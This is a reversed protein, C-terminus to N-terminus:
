ARAAVLEDLITATGDPDFLQLDHPTAVEAYLWGEALAREAFPAMDDDRTCRVFARPLDHVSRTLAVPDTMTKFPHPGLRQLYDARVEGPLVGEPPWLERPMTVAGDHENALLAAGFDDPVLDLLAQGDDPVFADLYVVMRIREPARDAVATVVMGGYSHGCLVVDALQQYELVALVDEVHGSLGLGAADLHARDGLGTLTPTFVEHGRGRLRRAVDEWEWGGGWGGHVVVFVTM